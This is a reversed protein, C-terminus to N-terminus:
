CFSRAILRFVTHNLSISFFFTAATLLLFTIFTTTHSSRAKFPVRITIATAIFVILLIVVTILQGIIIITLHFKKITQNVHPM